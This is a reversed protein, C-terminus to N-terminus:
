IGHASSRERTKCLDLCRAFTFSSPHLLLSATCSISYWLYYPTREPRAYTCAVPLHLPRRIYLTAPPLSYLKDFVLPLLTNCVSKGYGTPLTIFVDHGSALAKIAERQDPKVHNYGLKLAAEDIASGVSASDMVAAVQQM